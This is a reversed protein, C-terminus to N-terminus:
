CNCICTGTCACVPIRTPFLKTSGNFGAVAVASNAASVEMLRKVCAFPHVIGQENRNTLLNSAHGLIIVRSYLAVKFHASGPDNITQPPQGNGLGSDVNEPFNLGVRSGPVIRATPTTEHTPQCAMEARFILEFAPHSWQWAELSPTRKFVERVRATPLSNQPDPLKRQHAYIWRM